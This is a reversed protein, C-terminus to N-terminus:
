NNKEREKIRKKVKKRVSWKLDKMPAIIILDFETNNQFNAGSLDVVYVKKVRSDFFDKKSIVEISSSGTAFLIKKGEFGIKISDRTQIEIQNLYEIEGFTLHLSDINTTDQSISTKNILLICILLVLLRATSQIKYIMDNM